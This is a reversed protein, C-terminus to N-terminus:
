YHIHLKRISIPVNYTSKLETIAKNLERYLDTRLAEEDIAEFGVGFFGIAEETKIALEIDLVVGNNEVDSHVKSWQLSTDQGDFYARIVEKIKESIQPALKKAREMHEKQKHETIVMLEDLGAKQLLRDVEAELRSKQALIQKLKENNVAPTTKDEEIPVLDVAPTPQPKPTPKPTPPQPKKEKKEGGVIEPLMSTTEMATKTIEKEKGVIQEITLGLVSAKVSLKKVVIKVGKSAFENLIHKEFLYALVRRPYELEKTQVIATAEVEYTAGEIPKMIFIFKSLSPVAHMFEPVLARLRYEITRHYQPPASIELIKKEEFFVFDDPAKFFEKLTLKPTKMCTDEHSVLLQGLKAENIGYVDVLFSVGRKIFEHFLKVADEGTYVEEEGNMNKHTVQICRLKNRDILIQFIFKDTQIKTFLELALAYNEKLHDKVLKLLAEHTNIIKGSSVKTTGTIAMM